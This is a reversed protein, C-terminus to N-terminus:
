LNEGKGLGLVGHGSRLVPGSFPITIGNLLVLNSNIAPSWSLQWLKWNKMVFSCGDIGTAQPNKLKPELGTGEAVRRTGGVGWLASFTGTSLLHGSGEM